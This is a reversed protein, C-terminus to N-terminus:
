INDNNIKEKKIIFVSEIRLLGVFLFKQDANLCKYSISVEEIGDVDKKILEFERFWEEIM